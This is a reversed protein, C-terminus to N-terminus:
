RWRHGIGVVVVDGHGDTSRPKSLWMIVPKVPMTAAIQAVSEALMATKGAGTLASLAHFFPVVHRKRNVTQVQPNALYEAVRSSVNAAAAEQFQYLTLM